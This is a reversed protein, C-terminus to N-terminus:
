RDERMKDEAFADAHRPLNADKAAQDGDQKQRDPLRAGSLADHMKQNVRPASHMLFDASPFEHHQESAM